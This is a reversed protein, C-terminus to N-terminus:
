RAGTGHTSPVVAIQNWQAVPVDFGTGLMLLLSM